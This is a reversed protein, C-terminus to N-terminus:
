KQKKLKQLSYILHISAFIKNTKVEKAATNKRLKWFNFDVRSNVVVVVFFNGKM